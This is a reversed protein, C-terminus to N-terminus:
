TLIFLSTISTGGFAKEILRMLNQRNTTCKADSVLLRYDLNGFFEYMCMKNQDNEYFKPNCIGSGDM